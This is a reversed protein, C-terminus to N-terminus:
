FFRKMHYILVIMEEDDVFFGTHQYLAVSGAIFAKQIHSLLIDLIGVLFRPGNKESCDVTKVPRNAPKYYKGPSGFCQFSHILYKTLPIYLLGIPGNYFVPRSFFFTLQYM